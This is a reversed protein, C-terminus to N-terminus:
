FPGHPHADRYRASFVVQGGARFSREPRHRVDARTRCRLAPCNSKADRVGRRLEDWCASSRFRAPGARRLMSRDTILRAPKTISKTEQLRPRLLTGGTAM